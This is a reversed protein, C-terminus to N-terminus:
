RQPVVCNLRTAYVQPTGARRDEYIVMGVGDTGFAVAPNVAAGPSNTVQLKPTLESLDPGITKSFIVYKGSVEEAWFLLLRDGLPLLAHSRAFPAPETVDRAPTLITGDRSVTAARITQGPAAGQTDWVVVFRDGSWAVSTSSVDQDTGIAVPPTSNAFDFGVARFALTHTTPTTRVYAIGLGRDGLAIRADDANEPAATVAVNAGVLRGDKDIRQGFIRTADNGERRDDWALLMETGNWKMDPRLSFGEARTVRLDPSAKAADIDLRNYYIEFDGDRRDEWAAGFYSGNYVIPGTFADTAEKTIATPPRILGKGDFSVLTNAWGGTQSSFTAVFQSEAYTIGGVGAQKAGVSLLFGDSGSAIYRAGDDVVGNCDNDVGDCTEVVGPHAAPSADNCDNGCAGPAGPAFGPLPARFSDGDSDLTRATFTCTGTTSVCADTTCPDGDDCVVAKGPICQGELCSVPACRDGGSCDGDDACGRLSGAEVPVGLVELQRIGTRSGCAGFVFLSLAVASASARPFVANM